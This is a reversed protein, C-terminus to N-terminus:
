AYCDAPGLVAPEAQKEFFFQRVHTCLHCKGAYAPLEGYGLAKARDLLGWPGVVCLTRLFGNRDPHFAKWVEELPTENVNGLIIGSCTGSFVNGFPDIHVGKAGLFGAVCSKHLYAEAPESALLEALHGAARGMFRFPHEHYAEVYAKDREEQLGCDTLYQEWRVQVHDPGFMGKAVHTLRYAAKLDVYEQHFPDVSVKLRQVGLTLLVALREEVIRDDTAWFGNTEVMDVPGLNQRKGEKLIAV